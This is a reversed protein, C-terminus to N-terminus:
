RILVIHGSLEKEEVTGEFRFVIRWLYVGDAAYHQGGNVEGTWAQEMDSSRFVPNGWRDFIVISYEEAGRVIPSFVDNIGDKDPTFANPVYMSFCDAEVRAEDTAECSGNTVTLTYTTTSTPNVWIIADSPDILSAGQTWEISGGSATNGLAIPGSCDSIWDPGADAVPMESFLLEIEGTGACGFQDLVEVAYLGSQSVVVNENASGTSWINSTYSQNLSLTVEDGACPQDPSSLISVVIEPVITVIANEALAACANYATVVLGYVGSQETILSASNAGSIPLGNLTWQYFAFDGATLVVTEGECAILDDAPLIIPLPAPNFTLETEDVSECGASSAVTVAYVGSLAANVSPQNSISAGNLSWEYLAWSGSAQLGILEGECAILDSEDSLIDVQPTNEFTIQVVNSLAECGFANTTRATYNGAESVILEESLIGLSVNNNLWDVQQAPVALLTISEGECLVENGAPSITIVPPSYVTVVVSESQSDCSGNSIEVAYTGSIEVQLSPQNEGILAVGNLTWQYDSQGAIANLTVSQGACFGLVGDAVITADPASVEIAIVGASILACNGNGTQVSYNGPVSVTLAASIAGVIPAGNLLWQYNPFGLTANLTISEGACFSSQPIVTIAPPLSASATISHAVSTAACTGNSVVLSYVGAQTASYSSSQAGNIPTGNLLWQYTLFPSSSILLIVDGPCVVSPGNPTITPQPLPLITVAIVASTFECNGITVIVQYNGSNLPIYASSVAGLIETGNFVWQYSTYIANVSIEPVQGACASIPGNTSMVPSPVTQLTINTPPSMAECSNSSASVTYNGSASVTLSSSTQGAIPSGNLFWQLQGASTTQLTTSEGVCLTISNSPTIIPTDITEVIVWESGTVSFDGCSNSITLTIDYTGPSDYCIGSPNQTSSGGSISGPFSWNWNTVPGNADGSFDVCDGPCIVVEPSTIEPDVPAGNSNDMTVNTCRQVWVSAGDCSRAISCGQGGGTPLQEFAATASPFNLVTSACGVSGSTSITAPFQGNGWYIADTLAGASNVLILQENNNTFIGIGSGATCNCSGWNLDISPGSNSSGIVFFDNAGLLTGAPIVVSFDGDGIVFCGINVPTDCTNYLEVWEETNPSCSGDCPGSPNIMIENIVICSQGKVSFSFVVVNMVLALRFIGFHLSLFLTRILSNM